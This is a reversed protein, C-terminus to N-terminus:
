YPGALNSSNAIDHSLYLALAEIMAASTALRDSVRAMEPFHKEAKMSGCSVFNLSFQLSFQMKKPSLSLSTLHISRTFRSNPRPPKQPVKLQLDEEGSHAPSTKDNRVNIISLCKYFPLELM